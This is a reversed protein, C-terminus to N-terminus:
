SLPLFLLIFLHAISTAPTPSILFAYLIKTQFDSPLLGSPLGLRLYWSITLISRLSLPHSPTSQIWRAWLLSLNHANTSVTISIRTGYFSPFKEVLQIVTLKELRITIHPPPKYAVHFPNTYTTFITVVASQLVLYRLWQSSCFLFSINLCLYSRKTLYRHKM